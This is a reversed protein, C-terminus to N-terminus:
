FSKKRYSFCESVRLFSFMGYFAISKSLFIGLCWKDLIFQILIKELLTPEKLTQRHFVFTQINGNLLDDDLKVLILSPRLKAILRNRYRWIDNFQPSVYRLIVEVLIDWYFWLRLRIRLGMWRLVRYYWNYLTEFSVYMIINKIIVCMLCNYWIIDYSSFWSSFKLIHLLETAEINESIDSFHLTQIELIFVAIDKSRNMLDRLEKKAQFSNDLPFNQAVNSSQLKM